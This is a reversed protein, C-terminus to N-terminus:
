PFHWDWSIISPDRKIKELSGRNNTEGKPNLMAKREKLSGGKPTLNSTYSYSM